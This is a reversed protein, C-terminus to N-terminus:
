ILISIIILISTGKYEYVQLVKEDELFALLTEGQDFELSVLSSPKYSRIEQFVGSKFPEDYIQFHLLKITSM